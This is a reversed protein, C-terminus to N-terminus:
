HKRHKAKRAKAKWERLFRGYLRYCPSCRSVHNSIWPHKYPRAAHQALLSESPCGVRNPNPFDNELSKKVYRLLTKQTPFKRPIKKRRKRALPM